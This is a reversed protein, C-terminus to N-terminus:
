LHPCLKFIGLAMFLLAHPLRLLSIQYLKHVVTFFSVFKFSNAHAATPLAARTTWGFENVRVVKVLHGFVNSAAQLAELKCGLVSTVELLSEM